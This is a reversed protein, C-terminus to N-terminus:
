YRPSMTAGLQQRQLSRGCVFSSDACAVIGRARVHTVTRADWGEALM